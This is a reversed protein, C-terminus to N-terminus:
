YIVYGSGNENDTVHKDKNQISKTKNNVLKVLGTFRSADDILLTFFYLGSIDSDGLSDTYDMTFETYRSNTEAITLDLTFEHKNYVSTLDLQAVGSINAANLSFTVANEYSGTPKLFYITM